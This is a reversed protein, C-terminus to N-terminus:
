CLRHDSGHKGCCSKETFKRPVLHDCGGTKLISGPMDINHGVFPFGEDWPMSYLDVSTVNKFWVAILKSIKNTNAFQDWLIEYISVEQIQKRNRCYFYCSSAEM